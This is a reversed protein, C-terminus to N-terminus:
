DRAGMVRQLAGHLAAPKLPKTLCADFGADLYRDLQHTMANATFALAPVRPRGAVREIERLRDLLQTGDMGPMSIDLIMVDFGSGRYLDLAAFGDDATVVETGLRALMRELIIQNTRNDDVILVRLPPLPPALQVSSPGADQVRGGSYAALPLTITTRTGEGLASDIQLEGGMLGVLRQVISMGLGTGGFRRSISTDAQAFPDFIRAVHDPSMGIGTDHVKIVLQEPSDAELCVCISGEDTFKIANGLLNHLIQMLRHPDGIRAAGSPDRLDIKFFLGKERTRLRYVDDVRRALAALDFPIEELELADAEIKSMDLLDDIITMLLNGSDQLVRVMEKQASDSMADDLLASIGLIGNLPTRIEHSMNALFNTKTVNARHAAALSAERAQEAEVLATVDTLAYVVRLGDQPAGEIPAANISLYKTGAALRLAVRHNQVHCRRGRVIAFPEQEDPVPAGDLGTIAPHLADYPLGILASKGLGLIDSCADNAFFVKGNADFVMVGIVNTTVIGQLFAREKALEEKASQMDRMVARRFLVPRVADAFVRLVYVEGRTFESRRTVSDFGVFGFLAGAELMPIILLSRIEQQALTAYEISEPDLEAIDPLLIPQNAALPEMFSDFESLPLDQLMDIAPAIGPACWEHTNSILPGDVLFMYARDRQNYAGLQGLCHTIVSDIEHDTASLLDHIADIVIAQVDSLRRTDAGMDPDPLNLM